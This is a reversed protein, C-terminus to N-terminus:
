EKKAGFMGTIWQFYSPPCDPENRIKEMRARAEKAKETGPYKKIATQYYLRAAGYYKHKEYYEALVFERNAKEELIQARARLVREREPGLKDGFQTITQNTIKEAENLPIGPYLTGQYVRMKAQLGLLHARLQHESSPYEKMLLDYNYAANEYQGHRFYANGLALLSVAALPGTPDHMRVREYAQIAYGFSDFMPRSNDTMNPTTPWTPNADYLQEWYIGMAFERRVVVDLHRTNTYKKLLGGYTDHAKPYQDSFFESEGQLFLADEELPTDPWRDAAMAFKAGAEKYKKDRFLAQGEQMATRSIKEDPGYGISAKINKYVNEPALDSWEFGQKKEDEKKADAISVAGPPPAPLESPITPPPGAAANQLAGVNPDMASPPAGVRSSWPSAPGPVLPASGDPTATANYSAPTVGSAAGAPAAATPNAAGPTTTAPPKAPTQQGTLSKYLWGEHENSEDPPRNQANAPAPPVSACGGLIGLACALVLRLRWGESSMYSM